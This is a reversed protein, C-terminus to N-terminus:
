WKWAPGIAARGAARYRDFLEELRAPPMGLDVAVQAVTGTGTLLQAVMAPAGRVSVSSDVPMRRSGDEYVPNRSFFTDFLLLTAVASTRTFLGLALAAAFVDFAM